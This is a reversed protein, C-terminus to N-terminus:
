YLKDEDCCINLKSLSRSPMMFVILNKNSLKLEIEIEKIIKSTYDIENFNVNLEDIFAREYKNDVFSIRNYNKLIRKILSYNKKLFRATYFKRLFSILYNNKGGNIKIKNNEKILKQSYDADNGFDNSFIQMIVLNSKIESFLNKVQSLYIIPSYSATGFNLTERKSIEEIKAVFTDDYKVQNAETFSDGLFIISRFNDKILSNKITKDKVRFGNKDYFIRFGGFEKNGDDHALFSYNTPHVHHYINSRELPSRGYNIDLIRLILEVIFFSLLLAIMLLFLNKAISKFKTM